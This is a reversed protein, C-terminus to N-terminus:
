NKVFKKVSKGKETHINIFYIGSNLESVNIETISKGVSTYEKIVRGNTDLIQAKEINFESGINLISNVPNPFLKFDAKEFNSSSLTGGTIQVDDIALRYQNATSFCNFGLYYDGTTSPTFSLDAQTWTQLTIGSYTQLTNTQAAVTKDNGITVKFNEPYATAGDATKYKFKISYSTGATLYLRRSFLWANAANTAHYNYGAYVTGEAAAPIPAAQTYIGWNNGTGANLLSWDQSTEFGYSYPPIAASFVTTFNYPGAWISENPATCSKKIYYSYNTGSNLSTLTYPSSISNYTVGNGLSFGSTGYQISYIAGAGTWSVNAGTETILSTSVGNPSACVVNKGLFTQPRWNSDTLATQLATTSQASKLGNTLTTTCSAVNGTTALTGSANQYDFAIYLGGGTYTFASGGTFMHNLQGVSAPITLTSNSVTAMGTIATAWTNSKLNTADTTNQMYVTYNGTTAVNQATSYNFGIANIVDGNVLGSATVEAATILYVTRSYRQLGQPARSNGSTSGNSLLASYFQTEQSHSFFSVFTLLLLLLKKMKKMKLKSLDISFFM